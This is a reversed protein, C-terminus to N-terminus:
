RFILILGEQILALVIIPLILWVLLLIPYSLILILLSFLGALILVTRMLMGVVRVITNTILVSFYKKLDFNKPYSDTMKKWPDFFNSFLLRLSFFESIFFLFNKWIKTLSYLARGYHWRFYGLIILVM